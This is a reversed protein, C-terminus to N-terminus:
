WVSVRVVRGQEDLFEDKRGDPVLKVHERVPDISSLESVSAGLGRGGLVGAQDGMTVEMDAMMSSLYVQLMYAERPQNVRGGIVAGELQSVADRYVPAANKGKANYAALKAKFQEFIGRVARDTVVADAMIRGAGVMAEVGFSREIGRLRLNVESTSMEAGEAEKVTRVKEVVRAGEQEQAVVTGLTVGDIFNWYEQQLQQNSGGRRAEERLQAINRIQLGNEQGVRQVYANLRRGAEAKEVDTGVLLKRIEGAIHLARPQIDAEVPAGAEVRAAIVAKQDVLPAAHIPRAEAGPM